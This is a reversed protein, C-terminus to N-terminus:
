HCQWLLAGAGQETVFGYIEAGDGPDWGAWSGTFQFGFRWGEGPPYQEGQLFLPTGGIKNWDGHLSKSYSGPPPDPWSWMTPDAGSEFRVPQVGSAPAIVSLRQPGEAMPATPRHSPAGPQLVLANGEGLPEFTHAHSDGSLFIYAMREPDGPLPLQGYFIMPRGEAGLPWAPEAAWDPQGGFKGLTAYGVASSSERYVLIQKPVIRPELPELPVRESAAIRGGGRAATAADVLAEAEDPYERSLAEVAQSHSWEARRQLQPDASTQAARLLGLVQEHLWSRDRADGLRVLMWAWSRFAASTSEGQGQRVLVRVNELAERDGAVALASVAEVWEDGEASRADDRLAGIAVASGIEALARRAARRVARDQDALAGAVIVGSAGPAVRALSELAAARMASSPHDVLEELVESVGPSRLRAVYCDAVLRLEYPETAVAVWSRVAAPDASGDWCWEHPLGLTPRYDFGCRDCWGSMGAM